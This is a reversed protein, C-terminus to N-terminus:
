NVLKELTAKKNIIELMAQLAEQQLGQTYNDWKAEKAKQAAVIDMVGGGLAGVGAGIATGVGPVVSGIAAGAEAGAWSSALSVPLQPLVNGAAAGLADVPHEGIDKVSGISSPNEKQVQEAQERVRKGYGALGESGVANGIDELPQGLFANAMHATTSRATNGFESGKEKPSLIDKEIAHIIDEHSMDDPFEVNGVGTVEVVQM